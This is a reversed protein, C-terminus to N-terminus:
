PILVSYESEEQAKPSQIPPPCVEHSSWRGKLYKHDKEMKAIEQTLRGEERAALATLHKESEEESAMAQCLAQLVCSSADWSELFVGSSHKQMFKKARVETNELEQKLHKLMETMYQKEDKNRDLKTEVEM